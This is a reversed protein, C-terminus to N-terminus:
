PCQVGLVNRVASQDVEYGLTGVKEWGTIGVLIEMRGDGNLDMVASLTYKNPYSAQQSQLYYDTVIPISIAANGVVRRLIVMSYDGVSVDHGTVDIFRSASILVEDTGDGEMDVKLVKNLIIDSQILGNAQLMEGIVQRYSNNETSLEQPIRPLPNWSGGIAIVSTGSPKPDLAIEQMAPCFPPNQAPRGGTGTYLFGRDTYLGYQEGGRLLGATANSDLWIGNQTGGLLYGTPSDYPPYVVIPHILGPPPQPTPTASSPLIYTNPTPTPPWLTGAQQTVFASMSTAERELAIKTPDATGPATPTQIQNISVEFTGCASLVTATSLFLSLIKRFM